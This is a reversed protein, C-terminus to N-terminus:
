YLVYPGISRSFAQSAVTECGDPDLEKCRGDTLMDLQRRLISEQLYVM